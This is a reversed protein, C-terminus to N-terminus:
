EVRDLVIYKKSDQTKLLIVKDGNKLGNKVTIKVEKPFAITDGGSDEWIGGSKPQIKAYVDYDKVNKTLILFSEGLEFKNDLKIRIPVDDKIVTGYFIKTSPLNVTTNKSIQQITKLLDM